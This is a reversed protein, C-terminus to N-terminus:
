LQETQRVRLSEISQLGGPEEMEPIRWALTSSQTAMAEGFILNLHTCFMMVVSSALWACIKLFIVWAQCFLWIHMSCHTQPVDSLDSKRSCLTYLPFAKSSSNLFSASDQLSNCQICKSQTFPFFNKSRVALFSDPFNFFLITYSQRLIDFAKKNNMSTMLNIYLVM